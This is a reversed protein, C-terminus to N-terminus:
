SVRHFVHIYSDSVKFSAGSSEINTIFVEVKMCAGVRHPFPTDTKCLLLSISETLGESAPSVWTGPNRTRAELLLFYKLSEKIEVKCSM